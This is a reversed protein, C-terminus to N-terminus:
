GQVIIPDGVRGCRGQLGGTAPGAGGHTLYPYMSIHICALIHVCRVDCGHCDCSNLACLIGVVHARRAVRAARHGRSACSRPACEAPARPAVRRRGCMAPICRGRRRMTALARRRRSSRRSAAAPACPPRWAAQRAHRAASCGAPVQWVALSTPGCVVARSTRGVALRWPRHAHPASRHRRHRVREHGRRHVRRAWRRRKTTSRNAGRITQHIAALTVHRRNVTLLDQLCVAAVWHQRCRSRVRQRRRAVKSPQQGRRGHQQQNSQGLPGHPM